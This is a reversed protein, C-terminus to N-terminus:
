FLISLAIPFLMVQVMYIQLDWICNLLARRDDLFLNRWPIESLVIPNLLKLKHNDSGKLDRIESYYLAKPFFPSGQVTSIVNLVPELTANKRELQTRQSWEFGVTLQKITSMIDRTRKQHNIVKMMPTMMPPSLLSVTEGQDDREDVLSTNLVTVPLFERGDNVEVKSKMDEPIDYNNVNFRPVSSIWKEIKSDDFSMNKMKSFQVSTNELTQKCDVCKPHLFLHVLLWTSLAEIGLFILSALFLSEYSIKDLVM